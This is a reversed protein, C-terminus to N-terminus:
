SGGFRFTRRGTRSASDGLGVDFEDDPENMGVLPTLVHAFGRSM